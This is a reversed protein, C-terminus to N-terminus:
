ARGGAHQRLANRLAIMLGLLIFAGPPLLALLVGHRADFLRLGQGWAVDGVLLNLDAGLSGRGVLERTASLALLVLLFGTGMAFGDVVARGIGESAAFSEARGLILCNTVILPLYIGLAAHMGPRWAALLLELATVLGAIVAVFVGLRVEPPLWRGILAASANSAVLVALTALGLALGSALSTSVALLPCLGLLQVTGPNNDRIGNRLLALTTM